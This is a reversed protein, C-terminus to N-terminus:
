FPSGPSSIGLCTSSPIREDTRIGVGQVMPRTRSLGWGRFTILNEGWFPVTLTIELSGGHLSLFAGNSRYGQLRLRILFTSSVMKKQNLFHKNKPIERNNRM